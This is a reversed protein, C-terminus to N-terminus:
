GCFVHEKWKKLTDLSLVSRFGNEDCIDLFNGLSLKGNSKVAYPLTGEFPLKVLTRNRDILPKNSKIL